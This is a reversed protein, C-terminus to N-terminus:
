RSPTSFGFAVPGICVQQFSEHGRFRIAVPFEVVKSEGVNNIRVRDYIFQPMPIPPSRRKPDSSRRIGFDRMLKSRGPTNLEGLVNEPTYVYTTHRDTVIEFHDDMQVRNQTNEDDSADQSPNLSSTDKEEVESNDNLHLDVEGTVDMSMMAFPSSHLPSPPAPKDFLSWPNEPLCVIRTLYCNVSTNPFFNRHDNILHVGAM